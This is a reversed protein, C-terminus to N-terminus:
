VEVGLARYVATVLGKTRENGFLANDMKNMVYGVAMHRGVDMIGASGGWGGWYCVREDDPLWGAITEKGALGYGIGTRMAAGSALDVGRAQEEFIRAITKESLLTMGDVAGGGLAVASLVRAVGRANAHANAAGLDARRWVDSNARTADPPPSRFTKTAISDPAAAGTDAPLPPPPVVDAIRHWDKEDAGLQFDATGLPAAIEEAVFRRLPKGTTRRVLEGILHGHNFAQYCIHSGPPTSWAPQAALLATAHPLDITEELSLVADWGSVGSTHSLVHRVLIDQKGAAAFEPWYTAVREDPDLLGREVCMLAALATITKSTSWVTTITDHEWARTKAADAHGGWLDIVNAGDIDVAFSAGLEEGSDLYSQFLREVEAFRPDCTGQVKAM